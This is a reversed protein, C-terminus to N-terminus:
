TEGAYRAQVEALKAELEERTFVGKEVLLHSFGLVWKGYYPLANYNREGIIEQIRRSEDVRIVRRRNDTLLMMIADARKEWERLPHEVREIAGAPRGGLDHYSRPSESSSDVSHDKM